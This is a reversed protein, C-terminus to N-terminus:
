YTTKDSYLDDCWPSNFWQKIATVLSSTYNNWELDYSRVFLCHMLLEKVEDVQKYMEDIRCM